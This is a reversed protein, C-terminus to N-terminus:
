GRLLLYRTPKLCRTEKAKLFLYRNEPNYLLCNLITRHRSEYGIKSVAAQSVVAVTREAAQSHCPIDDFRLPM